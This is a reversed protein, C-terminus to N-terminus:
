RPIGVGLIRELDDRRFCILIWLLVPVALRAGLHHIFVDYTSHVVQEQFPGLHVLNMAPFQSCQNLIMILMLLGLFLHMSLLGWLLAFFRRKWPLPTAMVLAALLVTPLYGVYRSTFSIQAASLKGDPAAQKRNGIYITTDLHPDSTPKFLVVWKSGDGDFISQATRRLTDAYREELGPWPSVLIGAVLAFRVLFTLLRKAPTSVAPL